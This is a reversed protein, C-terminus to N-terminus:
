TSLKFCGAPKLEFVEIQCPLVVVVPLLSAIADDTASVEAVEVVSVTTTVAVSVSVAVMSLVEGSNGVVLGDVVDTSEAMTVLECDFLEKGKGGTEEILLLISSERLICVVVSKALRLDLLKNPLTIL